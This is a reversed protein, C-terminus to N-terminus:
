LHGGRALRARFMAAKLPHTMPPAHFAPSKRLKPQTAELAKSDQERVAARSGLLCSPLSFGEREIVTAGDRDIRVNVRAHRLRRVQDPALIQYVRNDFTVTLNKSVTRQHWTCLIRDLQETAPSPRHADHASAAPVAFKRNYQEIFSPLYDNAETMASINRLRLEKILRNQLTSNAREVRGKAQPSHACILEVGLDDMARGFQTRLDTREGTNNIRFVSYKDAYFALPVGHAIIHQRALEFYGETTEQEDFRLALIQSTADDVDVYLTCHPGRDEFWAHHSGDIQALEGRCPRRERPPHVRGRRRQKPRHLGAAILARRLTEHDLEIAHLEALKEAAFTPGFDPYLTRVLEVARAILAPDTRRNSPKGRRRSVLGPAGEQRYRRWLRKVQRVSLGLQLAAQPQTIGGSELGSMAQLRTLETMSM